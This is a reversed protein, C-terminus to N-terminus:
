ARPPLDIALFEALLEANPEKHFVRAIDVLAHHAMSRTLAAQPRHEPKGSTQIVTCIEQIYVLASLWSQHAHQSRFFSLVPYSIQGELVEAAWQECVMLYPVLSDGQCHEMFHAATPPSGARAALMSINVERRAFAQYLTPLYSIVLAILGFGIASELVAITRAVASQPTIDGLGLTFLTTGSMYLDTGFHIPAGSGDKLQSGISWHLVGFSFLLLVAWTAFLLVLSLPGYVALLSERWRESSVRRSAIRWTPWTFLYFARTFRLKRKIRRPLIVTEFAEWLVGLIACVALVGALTRM